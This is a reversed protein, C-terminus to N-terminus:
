KIAGTIKDKAVWYKSNATVFSEAAELCRELKNNVRRLRRLERESQALMNQYDVITQELQQEGEPDIREPSDTMQRELLLKNAAM